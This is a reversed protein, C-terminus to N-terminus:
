IGFMERCSGFGEVTIPPRRRSEWMDRTMLFQQEQRAVGRPAMWRFGNDAYGLSRSVGISPANDMFAESTAREAGLHDFAFSLVASRMERGIKLGQHRRALWSGTGVSKFLTFREGRMGQTGVLRGEFWVGFDLVWEDVSWSSRTRWHYQMFSRELQPSSQDTWAFGFPMFDADHIGSKALALLEVLEDERPVHLELRESRVVLGFLPWADVLGAGGEVM